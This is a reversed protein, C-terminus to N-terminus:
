RRKLDRLGHLDAITNVGLAEVSELENLALENILRGQSTAIEILPPMHLEDPYGDLKKFPPIKPISRKLWEVNWIWLSPNVRDIALIADSVRSDAAEMVRDIGGVDDRIIRGYRDLMPFEPTRQASVMTLVMGPHHARMLRKLTQPRWNPMDGYMVLVDSVGWSQVTPLAHLVADASGRREPQVILSPVRFIAGIRKSSVIAEQVLDADRRNVVVAIDIIGAREATRLACGILPVGAFLEVVKPLPRDGSMRLSGYGAAAIICGIM